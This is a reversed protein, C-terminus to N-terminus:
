LTSAFSGETKIYINSLLIQEAVCVLWKVSPLFLGGYGCVLLGAVGSGTLVKQFLSFGREGFLFRVM